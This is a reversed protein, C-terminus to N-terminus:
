SSANYQALFSQSNKTCPIDPHDEYYRRAMGRIIDCVSIGLTSIEMAHPAASPMSLVGPATNHRAHSFPRTANWTQPCSTPDIGATILTAGRPRFRVNKWGKKSGYPGTRSDKCSTKIKHDFGFSLSSILRRNTEDERM